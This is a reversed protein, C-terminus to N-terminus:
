VHARGIEQPLGSIAAKYTMGRALRMADLVAAETSPYPLLRCGGLAPGLRTSHIAVIAQLDVAPDLKFHVDGFGLSAALEFLHLDENTPPKEDFLVQTSTRKAASRM